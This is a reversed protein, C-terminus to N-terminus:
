RAVSLGGTLSALEQTLTQRSIAGSLRTRPRGADDLLLVTPTQLLGFESALDPRHTVDVHAFALEPQGEVLGEITRQVGPCRSCLETSFQVITARAGLGDLGFQAVDVAPLGAVARTREANRKLVLGLVGALLVLAGLVILALTADM